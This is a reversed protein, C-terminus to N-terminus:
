FLLMHYAIKINVQAAIPAAASQLTRSFKQRNAYIDVNVKASIDNCYIYVVYLLTIMFPLFLKRINIISKRLLHFKPM